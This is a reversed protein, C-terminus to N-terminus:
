AFKWELSFTRPVTYPRLTFSFLIDFHAFVSEKLGLYKMGDQVQMDQALNDISKSVFEALRLLCSCSTDFISCLVIGRVAAGPRGWCFRHQDPPQRCRVGNRTSVRREVSRGAGLLPTPFRGYDCIADWAGLTGRAHVDLGYDHCRLLACRWKALVNLSLDVWSFAAFTRLVGPSQTNALLGAPLTNVVARSTGYSQRKNLPTVVAGTYEAGRKRKGGLHRSPTQAPLPPPSPSPDDDTLDLAALIRSKSPGPDAMTAPTLFSLPAIPRSAANPERTRPLADRECAWLACGCQQSRTRASLAQLRGQCFCQM